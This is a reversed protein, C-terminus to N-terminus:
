FHLAYIQVNEMEDQLNNKNNKSEIEIMCIKNKLEEIEINKATAELNKDTRTKVAIGEWYKAKDNL